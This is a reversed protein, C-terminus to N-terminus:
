VKFTQKSTAEFRAVPRDMQWLEVDHSDVLRSAWKIASADDVCDMQVVGISRGHLGVIYAHYVRMKAELYRSRRSPSNYSAARMVLRRRPLVSHKDLLHVPVCIFELPVAKDKELLPIFAAQFPMPTETTFGNEVASSTISHALSSANRFKIAVPAYRVHGSKSSARGPRSHGSGSMRYLRLALTLGPVTLM